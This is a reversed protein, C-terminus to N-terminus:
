QSRPKQKVPPPDKGSDGRPVHPEKTARGARIQENSAADELNLNSPLKTRSRSTQASSRLGWICFSGSFAAIKESTLYCKKLRSSVAIAFDYLLHSVCTEKTKWKKRLFIVNFSSQLLINKHSIFQM